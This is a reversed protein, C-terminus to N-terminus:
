SDLKRQLDRIRDRLRAAEEFEEAQVRRSLEAKLREIERRIKLKGGTREPVKGRHSTHGHVRRFLPDLRDKFTRYCDMCGFRGMKAFQGYTLGCTPCRLGVSQARESRAGHTFDPNLFGSLLDHFSFGTDLGTFKEGKERACEECLHYETKDGNIIKTFHLTAMRIGCEECLM